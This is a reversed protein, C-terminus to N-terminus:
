RFPNSAQGATFPNASREPREAPQSAAPLMTDEEEEEERTAVNPNAGNGVKEMDMEMHEEEPPAKAWEQVQM